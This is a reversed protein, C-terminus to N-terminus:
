SQEIFPYLAATEFKTCQVASCELRRSTTRRQQNIYQLM